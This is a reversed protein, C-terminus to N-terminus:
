AVDRHDNKRVPWVPHPVPDKARFLYLRFIEGYNRFVYSENRRLYHDRKAYYLSPLEYWPVNPQCHHVVHFNNNLYLLALPGRDEIVVTRARFADHARHELFTRIKLLSMACYASLFYSWAPMSGIVGLWMVVLALGFGHLVYARAIIRDGALVAGFDAKWALYTGVVPGLIMRGILTNNARLLHQLIPSLHSWVAPDMYNAEPDDYPDTLNPDFHHQLHTDRFREYPVFVSLAPFVLVENLRRNAFPHGHLVEHQLSSFQAITWTTLAFGLPWFWTWLVTTGMGWGAYTGLLLLITPWEMARGQQAPIPNGLNMM